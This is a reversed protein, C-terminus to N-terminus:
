QPLREVKHGELLAFRAARSLEQSVDFDNLEFERPWLSSPPVFSWTATVRNRETARGGMHFGSTDVFVLTGTPYACVEWDSRPIAAELAAPPPVSGSPIQQPWLDGYKEGRRSNPVYHLPGATSDVNSLYLFVKVLRKDEPDRHWRQSGTYHDDHSSPMTNWVDVYIMRSMMELYSNAINLLQPQLGLRVWPDNWSIESKKSYMMVVYEKWKVQDYGSNIFAREKDKIEEKDLWGSVHSQLDAWLQRDAFLEDFHVHAIGRGNLEDLVRQQVNSLRPREADFAQQAKMNRTASYYNFKAHLWADHARKVYRGMRPIHILDDILTPRKPPM